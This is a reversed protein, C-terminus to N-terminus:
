PIVATAEIEVMAGEELLAAVQVLTMAPYHKGVLARYHEGVRKADRTYAAVDTVYLTMRGIHEPKGGAERVVELVNRLAQEFQGAFTESTIRSSSDWGVQGAVFLIRGPSCLMGNSYGRPDSLTKPNIITHMM